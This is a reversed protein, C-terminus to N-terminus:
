DVLYVCFSKTKGGVVTREVEEAWFPLLYDKFDKIIDDKLAHEGKLFLTFKNIILIISDTDIWSLDTMIDYYSHYDPKMYAPLEPFSFLKSMAAWYDEWCNIKDGDIEAIFVKDKSESKIKNIEEKTINFILNNMIM